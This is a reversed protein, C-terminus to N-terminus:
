YSSGLPACLLRPPVAALRLPAAATYRSQSLRPRAAHAQLNSVPPTCTLRLRCRSSRRRPPRTARSAHDHQKASGRALSRCRWFWHGEGHLRARGLGLGQVAGGRGHAPGSRTIDRRRHKRLARAVQACARSARRSHEALLRLSDPAGFARPVCIAAAGPAASRLAGAGRDQSDRGRPWPARGARHRARCASSGANESERPPIGLIGVEGVTLGGGGAVLPAGLACCAV